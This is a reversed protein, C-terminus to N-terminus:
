SQRVLLGKEIHNTTTPAELGKELNGKKLTTTFPDIFLPLVSGQKDKMGLYQVYFIIM